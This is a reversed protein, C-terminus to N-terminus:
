KRGKQVSRAAAVSRRLPCKKLSSHFSDAKVVTADAVATGSQRHEGAEYGYARRLLHLMDSHRLRSARQGVASKDGITASCRRIRSTLVTLVEGEVTKFSQEWVDFREADRRDFWTHAGVRKATPQNQACGPVALRLRPQSPRDGAEAVMDQPGVARSLAM